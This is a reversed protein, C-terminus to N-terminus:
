CSRAVGVPLQRTDKAAKLRVKEVDSVAIRKEDIAHRLVLLMLASYLRTTTSLSSLNPMSSFVQCVLLSLLPVLMLSTLSPNRDLLEKLKPALETDLREDIFTDSAEGFLRSAGCQHRFRVLQFVTQRTALVLLPM